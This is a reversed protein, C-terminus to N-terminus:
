PGSCDAYPDGNICDRAPDCCPQLCARLTRYAAKRHRRHRKPGAVQGARGYGSTELWSDGGLDIFDDHIGIPSVGLVREWNDGGDSTRYLGREGGAAFLHGMAAVFVVNGDSPHVAIRGIHRSERLGVNAWTTGGDVSRYVGDGWSSSQRNAREGTGVWVIDPNSQDVAIAGVSHTAEREFVPTFTVGNNTTKWVGGTASAAYFIYPDSELVAVDVIRGSMTAPGINRLRLGALDEVELLRQPLPMAAAMSASQLVALALLLSASRAM